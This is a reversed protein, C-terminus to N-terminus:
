LVVSREGNCVAFACSETSTKEDDYVSAAQRVHLLCSRSCVACLLLGEPAWCAWVTEGVIGAERYAIFVPKLLKTPIYTHM